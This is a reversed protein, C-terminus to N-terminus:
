IKAFRQFVRGAQPKFLSEEAKDCTGGQTENEAEREMRTRRPREGAAPGDEERDQVPGQTQSVERARYDRSSKAKDKLWRSAECKRSM